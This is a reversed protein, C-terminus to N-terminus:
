GVAQMSFRRTWSSLLLLAVQGKLAVAKSVTSKEVLKTASCHLSHAVHKAGLTHAQPPGQTHGEATRGADVM